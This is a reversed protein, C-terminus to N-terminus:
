LPYDYHALYIRQAVDPSHDKEDEVGMDFYLLNSTTEYELIAPKILM